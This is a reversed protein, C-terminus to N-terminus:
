GMRAPGISGSHPFYRLCRFSEFSSLLTLALFFIFIHFTRLVELLKGPIFYDYRAAAMYENAVGSGLNRTVETTHLVRHNHM